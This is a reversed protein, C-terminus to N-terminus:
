FESEPIMIISLSWPSELDIANGEWDTLRVRIATVSQKELTIYDLQSSHYDHIMSGHPVDVVVKRAISSQSIPGVSDNHSGLDSAIFLTHHPLLNVIQNGTLSTGSTPIQFALGTADDSAYFPPPFGAFDKPNHRLYHGSYIHFTGASAVTLKGTIPSFTVTYAGISSGTSLATQLASAMEDASYNGLTLAVKRYLLSKGLYAHGTGGSISQITTGLLDSLDQLNNSNLQVSAFSTLTQLERRAMIKWSISPHTITLTGAGSTVAYSGGLATQLATALSAEDSYSGVPIQLIRETTAGSDIERLYVKNLLALVTYDPQEEAVHTNANQLGISGFSQPIHVSDIFARCQDVVIPRDPTWVFDAHGHSRVKAARSDLYLKHVKRLAM